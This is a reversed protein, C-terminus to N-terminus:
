VLDDSVRLAQRAAEQKAEAKQTGVGTGKIQGDIKCHVTWTINDTPGTPEEVWSLLNSKGRGQFYNNIAQAPTTM